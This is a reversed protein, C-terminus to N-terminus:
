SPSLSDGIKFTEYSRDLAEGVVGVRMPLLRSVIAEVSEPWGRLQQVDEEYERLKVILSTITLTDRTGNYYQDFVEWLVRTQLPSLGSSYSTHTFHDLLSVWDEIQADIPAIERDPGVDRRKFLATVLNKGPTLTNAGGRSVQRAPGRIRRHPRPRPDPRAAQHAPPM